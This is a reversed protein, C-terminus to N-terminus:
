GRWLDWKQEFIKIKNLDEEFIQRLIPQVKEKDQRWGIVCDGFVDLLMQVTLTTVFNKGQERYELAKKFSYFIANMKSQKEQEDYKRQIDLLIKDGDILYTQEIKVNQQTAQFDTFILDSGAYEYVFINQKELQKKINNTRIALVKPNNKYSAGTIYFIIYNVKHFNIKKEMIDVMDQFMPIFNSEQKVTGKSNNLFLNNFESHIEILLALEINYKSKSLNQLNIRYVDVNDLHKNLSYEFSKLFTNYSSKEHREMQEALFSTIDCVVNEPIKQSEIVKEHHQEFIKQLKKEAIIGTSAVNGDKKKLSFHDVRFHEIGILSGRQHKSIPPLYGVFDPRETNDLEMESIKKIIRKSEGHLLKEANIVRNLCIAENNKKDLTM